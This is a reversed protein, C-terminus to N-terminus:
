HRAQRRAQTDPSGAGVRSRARFMLLCGLSVSVIALVLLVAGVVTAGAAIAVIGAILLVFGAPMCILSGRLLGIINREPM